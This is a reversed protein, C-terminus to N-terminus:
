QELEGGGPIELRENFLHVACIDTIKKEKNNEREMIVKLAHSIRRYVAVRFLKINICVM